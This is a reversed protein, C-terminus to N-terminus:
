REITQAPIQRNMEDLQTQPVEIESELEAIRVEMPEEEQLSFKIM